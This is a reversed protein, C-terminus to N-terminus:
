YLYPNFRLKLMLLHTVVQSKKSADASSVTLLPSGNLFDSQRLTALKDNKTFSRSFPFYDIAMSGHGFSIGEPLATV